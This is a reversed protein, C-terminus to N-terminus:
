DLNRALRFNGRGAGPGGVLSAVDIIVAVGHREPDHTQEVEPCLEFVKRRAEPDDDIRAKGM